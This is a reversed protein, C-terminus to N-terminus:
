TWEIMHSHRNETIKFRNRMYLCIHISWTVFGETNHGLSVLVAQSGERVVHLQNPPKLHVVAVGNGLVYHRAHMVHIIDITHYM